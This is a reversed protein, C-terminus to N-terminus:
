SPPQSVQYRPIQASFLQNSFKTQDSRGGVAFTLTESALLFLSSSHPFKQQRKAREREREKRKVRALRLVASAQPKTQWARSPRYNFHAVRELTEPVHFVASRSEFLRFPVYFLTLGASRNAWVSWTVHGRSQPQHSPDGSDAVGVHKRPHLSRFPPSPQTLTKLTFHHLTGATLKEEMMM